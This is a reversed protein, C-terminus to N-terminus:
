LLSNMFSNRIKWVRIDTINEVTYCVEGRGRTKRLGSMIRNHKDTRKVTKWHSLM